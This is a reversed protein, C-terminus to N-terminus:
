QEHERGHLKLESIRQYTKANTSIIVQMDCVIQKDVGPFSKQFLDQEVVLSIHRLTPTHKWNCGLLPRQCVTHIDM